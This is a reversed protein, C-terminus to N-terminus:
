EGFLIEDWQPVSSRRRAKKKTKQGQSSDAPDQPSGSSGAEPGSRKGMHKKQPGPMDRDANDATDANDAISGSNKRDKEAARSTRGFSFLTGMRHQRQTEAKTGSGTNNDTSDPIQGGTNSPSPAADTRSVASQNEEPRPSATGADADSPAAASGQGADARPKEEEGSMWQPALPGRTNIDPSGLGDDGTNGFLEHDVPSTNAGFVGFLKQATKNLCVITSTRTNYSWEATATRGAAAFQARIRWPDRGVRTARWSITSYDAGYNHMSQVLLQEVTTHPALKDDNKVASNLFQAITFSKEQEVQQAFRRILAIEVDYEQHIEEPSKGERTLVQIQRIPLTKLQHPQAPGSNDSVIQRAALIGKELDDSISVTFRNHTRAEEFILAGSDDVAIFVAQNAQPDAM